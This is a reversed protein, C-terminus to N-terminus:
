EPIESILTEARLLVAIRHKNKIKLVAGRYEIWLGDPSPDPESGFHTRGVLGAWDARPPHQSGGPHGL